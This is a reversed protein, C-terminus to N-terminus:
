EETRGPFNLYVIGADFISFGFRGRDAYMSHNFESRSDILFSFGPMLTVSIALRPPSNHLAM